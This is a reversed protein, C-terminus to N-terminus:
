QGSRTSIRRSLCRSSRKQGFLAHVQPPARYHPLKANTTYDIRVIVTDGAALREDIEKQLALRRSRHAQAHKQMQSNLSARQSPDCREREAMLAVCVSCAPLSGKRPRVVNAFKERRVRNVTAFSPPKLVVGRQSPHGPKRVRSPMAAAAASPASAAAATSPASAAAARAAASGQSGDKEDNGSMKEDQGREGVRDAASPQAPSNGIATPKEPVPLGHAHYWDAQVHDAAWRWPKYFATIRLTGEASPVDDCVTDFLRSLSAEAFERQQRRHDTATNGHVPALLHGRRWVRVATRIKDKACGYARRFGERCCARGLLFAFTQHKGAKAPQTNGTAILQEVLHRTRLKESALGVYLKRLAVVAEYDFHVSCHDPCCARPNTYLTRVIRDEDLYRKEKGTPHKQKAHARTHHTYNKRRIRKPKREDSTANATDAAQRLAVGTKAQAPRTQQAPGADRPLGRVPRLAAGSPEWDGSDDGDQPRNKRKFKRQQGRSAFTPDLHAFGAFCSHPATDPELDSIGGFLGADSATEM